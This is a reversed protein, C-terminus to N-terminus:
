KISFSAILADHDSIGKSKIRKINILKLRDSYMIHDIRFPLPDHITSGYGFGGKWWADKIGISEIINLTPSGSVDNFDGMVLIPLSDSRSVIVDKILLAESKRYESANEINKLYTEAHIRTDVNAPTMYEMRENYNNSSLHVGFVDIPSVPYDIRCYTIGYAMHNNSFLTDIQIPYKSYVKNGVCYILATAYPYIERLEDHIVDKAYYFNETIFFIDPNIDRILDVIAHRREQSSDNLPSLNGNFSLVTLANDTDEHFHINTSICRYQWNVFISLLIFTLGLIRKKLVLLVLSLIFLAMLIWPICLSFVDM